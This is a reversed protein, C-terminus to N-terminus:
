LLVSFGLLVSIFNYKTESKSTYVFSGSENSYSLRRYNLETRLAVADSLLYKIGVGANIIPIDFKSSMRGLLSNLFPFKYANSIGYGARIFPAFRQNEIRFTYALNGVFAFAPASKKVVFCNIEPEISLGDAVYVAPIAALQFYGYSEDYNTSHSSYPSISEYTSSYNYSGFSGSLDLEWSGKTFPKQPQSFSSVSFLVFLVLSIISRLM